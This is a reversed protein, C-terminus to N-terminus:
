HPAEAKIQAALFDEARRWSEDTDGRFNLDRTLAARGDDLSIVRAFLQMILTSSKHVVAFLAYRAGKQKALAALCDPTETPCAASVESARIVVSAGFADPAGLDRALNAAMAVLRQDHASRQDAPEASTDLLKIPFVAIARPPPEAAQAAVAAVFAATAVAARLRRTRAGAKLNRDTGCSTM